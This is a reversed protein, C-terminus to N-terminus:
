ASQTTTQSFRFSPERLREGPLFSFVLEFSPPANNYQRTKTKSYITNLPPGLQKVTYTYKQWKYLVVTKGDKM